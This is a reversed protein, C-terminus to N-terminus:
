SEGEDIAAVFRSVPETLVHYTQWGEDTRVRPIKINPVINGHKRVGRKHGWNHCELCIVDAVRECCLSCGLRANCRCCLVNEIRGM